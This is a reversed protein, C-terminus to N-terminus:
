NSDLLEDFSLRPVTKVAQKVAQRTLIAKARAQEVADTLLESLDRAAGGRTAPMLHGYVSPKSRSM